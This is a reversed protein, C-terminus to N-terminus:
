SPIELYYGVGRVTKLCRPRLGNKEMLKRVWRIHVDLTRTDGMYDTDWVHEMIKKRPLTEGPNRLFLEVLRAQKPTLQTEEGDILLIRRAVNMRFPGQGIVEEEESNLISGISNLIHRPNIPPFLLVDAISDANERPGPHLHLLPTTAFAEKLTRCIREGNSGLSIADLLILDLQINRALDIGQKGSRSGIVKHHKALISFLSDDKRRLNGVFLISM